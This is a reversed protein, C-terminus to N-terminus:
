RRRQEAGQDRSRGQSHRHGSGPQERQGRGQREEGAPQERGSTMRAESALALGQVPVGGGIEQEGAPQVTVRSGTFGQRALATQLDDMRRELQRASEQDPPVIVARVQEGIVSVRIRTQRGEGDSVQLTVRDATGAPRDNGSDDQPLNRAERIPRTTATDMRELLREAPGPSMASSAAGSDSSRERPARPRDAAEPRVLPQATEATPLEQRTVPLAPAAPLPPAKAPARAVVEPPNGPEPRIAPEPGQAPESRGAPAPTVAPGPLIAPEPAIVPTRRVIPGPRVVPDVPTAITRLTITSEPPPAPESPVVEPPVVPQGETVPAPRTVRPRALEVRFETVNLEGLLDALRAALRANGTQGPGDFEVPTERSVPPMPLPAPRSRERRAEPAPEAVPAAPAPVIPGPSALPALRSVQPLSQEMVPEAPDVDVQRSQRHVKQPSQGRTLPAAKVPEAKQAASQTAPKEPDPSEIPAPPPLLAKSPRAPESSIVELSGTPTSTALAEEGVDADEAEGVEGMKEAGGTEDTEVTEVTEVEVVPLRAPQVQPQLLQLATVLAAAFLAPDDAPQTAAPAPDTGALSAIFGIPATL